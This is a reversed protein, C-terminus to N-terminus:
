AVMLLKETSSYAASLVDTNIDVRDYYVYWRANNHLDHLINPVFSAFVGRFFSPRQNDCLVLKLADLADSSFAKLLPEYIITPKLNYSKHDLWLLFQRWNLTHDNAGFLVIELFTIDDTYNSAQARFPYGRSGELLPPKNLLVRRKM